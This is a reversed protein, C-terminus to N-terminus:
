SNGVESGCSFATGLKGLRGNAWDRSGGGPEETKVRGKTGCDQGHEGFEDREDREDKTCMTGRHAKGAEVGAVNRRRSSVLKTGEGEGGVLLSGLHARSVGRAQGRVSMELDGPLRGAEKLRHGM